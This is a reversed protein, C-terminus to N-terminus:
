TVFIARGIVMEDNRCVTRERGRVVVQGAHVSEEASPHLYM